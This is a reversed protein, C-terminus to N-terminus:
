LVLILYFTFFTISKVILMADSKVKIQFPRLHYKKKKERILVYLGSGVVFIIGTLIYLDPIDGFFDVGLFYETTIFM